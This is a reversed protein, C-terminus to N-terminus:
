PEPETLLVSVYGLRDLEAIPILQVEDDVIRMRGVPIGGPYPSRDFGSTEFRAGTSVLAVSADSLDLVLSRGSGAGNAVGTARTQPNILGVYMRPDTILQIQSRDGQVLLVRGVLGHGTVVPQGEVVGHNHGRDIEIVREVETDRDSVVKATVSPIDAIYSLDNAALFQALEEEVAPLRGIQGELEAIRYRLRHNEEVVDDYHVAGNWVGTLPSLAYDAVSRIPQVVSFAFRRIGGFPGSARADLTMLAVATIVLLIVLRRSPAPPRKM